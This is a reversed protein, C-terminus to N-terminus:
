TIDHFWYDPPVYIQHTGGLVELDGVKIRAFILANESDEAKKVADKISHELRWRHDYAKRYEKDIHATREGPYLRTCESWASTIDKYHQALAAKDDDCATVSASEAAVAHALAHAIESSSLDGFKRRLDGMEHRSAVYWRYSGISHERLKRM